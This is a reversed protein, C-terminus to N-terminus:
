TRPTTYGALSKFDGSQAQNHYHISSRGDMMAASSGSFTVYPSNISGNQDRQSSVRRFWGVLLWGVMALMFTGAFGSLIFGLPRPMIYEKKYVPTIPLLNEMQLVAGLAWGISINKISDTITLLGPTSLPLGYGWSMLTTMYVGTFCYQTIYDETDTGKYRDILTKGDTTCYKATLDQLEQITPHLSAGLVSATYYFASFAYYSGRVPPQFVGDFSCTKDECPVTKDFMKKVLARCADVDGTGNVHVPTTVPVSFNVTAPVTDVLGKPLCPNKTWDAGSDVLNQYYTANALDRGYGLYSHSYVELMRDGIYFKYTYDVPMEREESYFTMQTSAGGLDLAGYTSLPSFNEEGIGLTGLLFNLTVFGWVGEHLGSIVQVTSKGGPETLRYSSLSELVKEIRQCLSEQQDVPLGRMGATGYVYFSTEKRVNSPVVSNACQIAENLYAALELDSKSAFSALPPKLNGCAHNKVEVPSLLPPVSRDQRFPYEFVNVRTGSSGADLLVAYQIPFIQETGQPLFTLVTITVFGCTFLVLLTWPVWVRGRM